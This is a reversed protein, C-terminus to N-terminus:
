PAKPCTMSAGTDGNFVLDIQAKGNNKVSLKGVANAMTGTFSLTGDESLTYSGGESGVAYRGDAQILVDTYTYNLQGYDYTYCNYKGTPVTTVAPATPQQAPAAASTQNEMPRIRSINVWEDWNSGYGDYSVLCTGMPDPGDLVKAPYWTGAYLVSVAQGKVCVSGPTTAEAAVPLATLSTLLSIIALLAQTKNLGTLSGAKAPISSREVGVVM